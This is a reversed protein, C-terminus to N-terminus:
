AITLYEEYSDSINVRRVEAEDLGRGRVVMDVTDGGDLANKVSSWTANSFATKRSAVMRANKSKGRPRGAMPCDKMHRPGNSGCCQHRAPKGEVITGRKRYARKKRPRIEEEIAADVAKDLARDQMLAELMEDATLDREFAVNGDDDTISITGRYTM